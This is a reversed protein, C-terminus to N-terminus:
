RTPPLVPPTGELSRVRKTLDDLDSEVQKLRASLNELKADMAGAPTLPTFPVGDKTTM